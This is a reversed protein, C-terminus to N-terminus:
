KKAYLRKLKSLLLKRFSFCVGEAGQGEAESLILPYRTSSQLPSLTSHSVRYTFYVYYCFSLLM